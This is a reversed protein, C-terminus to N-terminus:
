QEEAQKEVLYIFKTLGSMAKAVANTNLTPM